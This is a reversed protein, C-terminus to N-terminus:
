THGGNRRFMAGVFAAVGNLQDRAVERWSLGVQDDFRPGGGSERFTSRITWVLHKALWRHRLVHKALIAGNAHAYASNLRQIEPLTRRGHRHLVMMDPVYFIPIGLAHARIIYDTDEGARFRGGAGFRPDFDGIRRATVRPVIFNCGQIFGGPHIGTHFTQPEDVDKITFALDSPDALRVRGGMMFDGQMLRCYRAIDALWNRDVLCDDDVFALLDGRAHSMGFNRARSLNGNVLRLLLPSGPAIRALEEEALVCSGISGNEVVLVEIALEPCAKAAAGLSALCQRLPGPRDRTCIIVSVIPTAVAERQM